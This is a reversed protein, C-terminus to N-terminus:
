SFSYFFRWGRRSVFVLMPCGWGYADRRPCYEFSYGPLRMSFYRRLVGPEKVYGWAVWRLPICDGWEVDIAFRREFRDFLDAFLCLICGWVAIM